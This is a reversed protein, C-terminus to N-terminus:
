SVIEEDFKVGKSKYYDAIIKARTCFSTNSNTYNNNEIMNNGACIENCYKCYDHKMCDSFDSVKMKLWTALKKNQNIQGLEDFSCLKYRFSVCPYIEGEASCYLSYRGAYCPPNNTDYNTAGCDAKYSFCEFPHEFFIRKLDNNSIRHQFNSCDGNLKGTLGFDLIFGCGLKEAFEKTSFLTEKNENLAVCKLEVIFNNEKLLKISQMAKAFAGKCNTIEDHIIAVDSYLSISVKLINYNKLKEIVGKGIYLANTFITILMNKHSIYEMIEFIDKRMFIEGGSLTISFVGLNYIIDVLKKIQELSLENNFTYDEFTHYCHICNLNCRNTIDLHFSYIYGNQYLKNSLELLLQEDEEPNHESKLISKNNNEEIQDFMGFANLSDIYSEFSDNDIENESLFSNLNDEDEIIAHFM